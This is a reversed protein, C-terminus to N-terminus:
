SQKKATRNNKCCVDLDIMIQKKKKEDYVTPAVSGASFFVADVGEMTLQIDLVSSRFWCTNATIGKSEFDRSTREKEFWQEFKM